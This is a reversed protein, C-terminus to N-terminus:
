PCFKESLFFTLFYIFLFFFYDMISLFVYIEMGVNQLRGFIKKGTRECEKRYICSYKQALITRFLSFLLLLVADVDCIIISVVVLTAVAFLTM